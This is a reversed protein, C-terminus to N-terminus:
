RETIESLEIETESQPFRFLKNGVIKMETKGDVLILTDGKTQYEGFFLGTTSGNPQSTIESISFYNNTKSLSVEFKVSDINFSYEKYNRERWGDFWMTWLLYFILPAFISNLFAIKAPHGAKFWLFALGVLISVGFIFPIIVILAISVDPTPKDLYIWLGFLLTELVFVTLLTAM